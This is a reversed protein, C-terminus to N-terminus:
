HSAPQPWGLEQRIAALAQHYQDKTLQNNLVCYQKNSLGVCGFCDQCNTLYAGYHCNTCNNSQELYSCQYCGGVGTMEYCFQAPKAQSVAQNLDTGQADGGGYSMDWCNNAVGGMFIYGCDELFYTDFGWYVNKSNNLNDGYPCNENQRQLSAPVPIDRKLQELKELHEKSPTEKIKKIEQEYEAKTLQQNFLCYQKHSLAVCGFCDTCNNLYASFHCNTCNTSQELYTCNFCKFCDVCEYCRECFAAFYCDGLNKGACHSSHTVNQCQHCQFSYHVNQSFHTYDVFTCNQNQNVKVAPIPVSQRLKQYNDLFGM